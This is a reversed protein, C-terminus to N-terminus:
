YSARSIKAALEELYVWRDMKESLLNQAEEKQKSLENLKAFDNAYKLIEQDLADVKEELTAIDDEITEFERQEKYSMKLKKEQHDKWNNRNTKKNSNDKEETQTLGADSVQMKTDSKILYDSYNGEYQKIVGNGEYAFIRTTIRDLFYRDHSVAVVIGDFSDLYDELLTLTTIDLDNTPEDLFLVNPAEMLIRLLYLRRREGGSLKEIYSYQQDPPFLFRELMVSASLTGEATHIVEGGERVYDIVRLAPDMSESEQSFYGIKVTDGITINGEDPKLIGMIMKMLTSKGCGNPGIFGIRDDRLVIYSFDNILHKDGFGKSIHELEITTKGLRSSISDMEVNQQMSPGKANKLEEFRETRARQRTGRAKIGQKMWEMEVRLLSQRKRETALEMEERQVKLEVFGSYNTDYEYLKGKDIEVIKNTVRDLFYRDHTVMILVGRFSNLFEELWLVMDNDLHNTPEDLILVETPDVLTRALAVRKKQGGSLHNCGEDFDYIGLKTLITKAESETKWDQHEKGDMVYELISQRKPFEPNQPLYSVRIGNGCIIQGKDPENIKAIIKLLTTKGTGNVGIVGIKDGSHIGLSVDDFIVKEGYIKSIHEINLINM